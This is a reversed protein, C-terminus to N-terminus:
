IDMDDIELDSCDLNEGGTNWDGPDFFKGLYCGAGFGV